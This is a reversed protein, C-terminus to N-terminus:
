SRLRIDLLPGPRVTFPKMVLAVYFSGVAVRVPEELFDLELPLHGATLSAAGSACKADVMTGDDLEISIRVQKVRTYSLLRELQAATLESM